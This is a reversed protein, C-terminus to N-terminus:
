AVRYAEKIASCGGCRVCGAKNKLPNLGYEKMLEGTRQYVELLVNYDTLPLNHKGPISRVPTIYPIVGVSVLKEVDKLFDAKKEGLGTLVYSSVQNQGFVEIAHKWNEEFLQYSLHFKGPTIDRRLQENLVEIHIGITDAGAEKLKNIYELDELAEIQVHLPLDNYNKKIGQLIEIYRKAGKDKSEDTGSTLTMHNCRGEKKAATIVESMQKANKEELTADNQLSVEIGCFSCAEGCAWYVCKQYITSSLCDVGHVLAIKKMPIGDSTLYKPNYFLPNQILKLKGFLQNSGENYVEFYGNRNEKLFLDTTNPNNWLAVNVLTLGDELLFYRGGSPGAGGKRGYDIQIGQTKCHDILTENLYLGSCLLKTKQKFATDISIM